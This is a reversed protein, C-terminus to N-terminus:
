FKHSQIIDMAAQGAILQMAADVKGVRGDTIDTVQRVGECFAIIGKEDGEDCKILAFRLLQEDGAASNVAASSMGQLQKELADVVPIQAASIAPVPPAMSGLLTNDSPTPQSAARPSSASLELDELSLSINIPDDIIPNLQM